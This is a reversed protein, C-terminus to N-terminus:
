QIVTIQRGQIKFHVQDTLELLKLLESLPVNRPINAVFHKSIKADYKVDVDYWRTVQQMISEITADSFKFQGNKWALVQDMDIDNAVTLSHDNMQAQEGPKLVATHSEGSSLGSRVKVSGQVLTTKIEPEDKYAHINFHTGLVEVETGNALVKFPKAANHAVEFYAEGTIEVTRTNGSFTVPFRLSSEANLWVWTGDCLQVKYQGGRPTSLTNLVTGQEENAQRYLLQGNQVKNVEAAGQKVVVGNQASDLVIKKGDDLTLVAKNGGPLIDKVTATTGATANEKKNRNLLFYGASVMLGLVVAAAVARRM